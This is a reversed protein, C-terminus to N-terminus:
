VCESEYQNRFSQRSLERNWAANLKTRAVEADEDAQARLSREIVYLVFLLLAIAWGSYAILLPVKDPSM